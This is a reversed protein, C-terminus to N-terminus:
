FYCKLKVPLKPDTDYFSTRCSLVYVDFQKNSESLNQTISKVALSIQNHESSALVIVTGNLIVAINSLKFTGHIARYIGLDDVNDGIVLEYSQYTNLIQTFDYISVIKSKTNTNRM